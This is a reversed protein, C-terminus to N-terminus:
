GRVHLTAHHKALTTKIPLTHLAHGIRRFVASEDQTAGTAVVLVAAKARMVMEGPEPDYAIKPSLVKIGCERLEARFQSNVDYLLGALKEALDNSDTDQDLNNFSLGFSDGDLRVRLNSPAEEPEGMSGFDKPDEKIEPADAFPNIIGEPKKM